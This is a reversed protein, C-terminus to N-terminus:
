VSPLALPHAFQRSVVVAGEPAKLSEVVKALLADPLRSTRLWPARIESTGKQRRGIESEAGDAAPVSEM